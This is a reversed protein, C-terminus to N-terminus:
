DGTWVVGVGISRGASLPVKEDASNFYEEDLLNHGTLRLALGNNLSYQASAGLIHASPIAKESSGPDDKDWRYQWDAQVRWRDRDFGFGLQLRRAPIDALPLGDDDTGEMSHGGFSLRWTDDLIYFGEIEIGEITGSTLNVFTRLDEAVEIREIYDDIENRFLFAGVFLRGATWRLGLDVNVAREPELDPNGLVGGRGTTGSFFRESLTPFRLGTGANAVLEAHEGTARRVLPVVAGVFGNWAADDRTGRTRGAGENSQQQWSLRTGAELQIRNGQWRLSAFADVEDQEASQLTTRTTSEGSQLDIETEEAGVGRRGFWSIGAQASTNPDLDFRYRWSSGLDLSENAVTSLSREPRLAETELDQPHAWVNFRWNPADIGLKALLHRERPYTTIRSEPFDTSSKGLDDAVAPILLIEYDLGGARVGGETSWTKHVSASWQTFHTDLETGAPTEANDATRRVLGLSWGREPDGWAVRVYRENGQSEWGTAVNWGNFARPFLQVVGGLAESGHYSSAPGRLLDVPGILLPDFFSTAVGARRESTMRMGSVLTLVRQRSVGRISFTQFQGGQGTESVSPAHQLLQGLTDPPAALDETRLVTAAGSAASLTGWPQGATVTMEETVTDGFAAPGAAAPEPTAESSQRNEPSPDDQGGESLALGGPASREASAFEDAMLMGPLTLLLLLLFAFITM